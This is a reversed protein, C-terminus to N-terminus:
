SSPLRVGVAAWATAAAESAGSVGLRAYAGHLHKEVTRPSLGMLRAIDPGRRGLALWRLVEAQRRTLGLGELAPITLGSVDPEIVLM